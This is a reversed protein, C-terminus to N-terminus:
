HQHNLHTASTIVNQHCRQQNQNIVTPIDNPDCSEAHLTGEM